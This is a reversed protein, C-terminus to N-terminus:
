LSICNQISANEASTAVPLNLETLFVRNLYAYEGVTEANSTVSELKIGTQESVKKINATIISSIDIEQIIRVIDGKAIPDELALRNQLATAIGTIAKESQYRSFMFELNDM